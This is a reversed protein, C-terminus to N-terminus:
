KYKLDLLASGIDCSSVEAAKFGEEVLIIIQSKGYSLNGLISCKDDSFLFGTSEISHHSDVGNSGLNQIFDLSIHAVKKCLANRM